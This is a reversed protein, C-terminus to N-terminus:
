HGYGGYLINKKLFVIVPHCNSQNTKTENNHKSQMTANEEPAKITIAYSL